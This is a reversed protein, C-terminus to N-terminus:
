SISDRRGFRHGQQMKCILHHHRRIKGDFLRRISSRRIIGVEVLM